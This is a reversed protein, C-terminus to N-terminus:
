FDYSKLRDNNLSMLWFRSDYRLLEHALAALMSFDNISITQEAVSKQVVFALLRNEKLSTPLLL